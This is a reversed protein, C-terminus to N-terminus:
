HVKKPHAFTIRFCGGGSEPSVYDLIAQNAECLEKSIYLGLGTGQKETTFFPEFLHPQDTVAVGPGHDVVQLQVRDDPGDHQLRIGAWAHQTHRLSYRLANSLLNTLIQSLHSPDFRCTVEPQPCDLEIQGTTAGAASFDQIFAKLWPALAVTEMTSSRGRSLQLVNEIIGNMRRCHRLIIEAMKRDAEALEPSELLLQSAHSAAGLPNRIEHAISATLRGLSVLKLHQAQQAIKGTDELFVIIDQGSEKRLTAFSAQVAAREASTRFPEARLEPTQQWHDLRDQLVAPLSELDASAPIGLLAYAAKNAMRVRGNEDAVIIGTLMRQIIQYNLQELEEINRARARALLESAIIRRTLSSVLITTAFFAAGLIGARVLNDVKSYGRTLLFAEQSIITLTALAALFLATRGPLLISGAAVSVVLMTGLGRAVGGGTWVLAAILAIELAISATVHRLDPRLGALLLLGYFIHLGLYTLLLMRHLEVSYPRDLASPSLVFFSAALVVGVTVRYHNYIRFLKLNEASSLTSM